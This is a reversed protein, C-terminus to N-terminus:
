DRVYVDLDLGFKISITTRADGAGEALIVAYGYRNIQTTLVALFDQAAKSNDTIVGDGYLEDFPLTMDTGDITLDLWDIYRGNQVRIDIQGGLYKLDRIDPYRDTGRTVIWGEDIKFDTHIAENPNVTITAPYDITGAVWRYDTECSSFSIITFIAILATTLKSRYSKM